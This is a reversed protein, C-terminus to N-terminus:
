PNSPEQADQLCTKLVHINNIHASGLLMTCHFKNLSISIVLLIQNKCRSACFWRISVKVTKGQSFFGLLMKGFTEEGYHWLYRQQEWELTCLCTKLTFPIWIGNQSKHEWEPSRGHHRLDRKGFVAYFYGLSGLTWNSKGNTLVKLESLDWCILLISANRIAECPM